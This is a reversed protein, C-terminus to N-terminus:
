LSYISMSGDDSVADLEGEETESGEVNSEAVVVVGDGGHRAVDGDGQDAADGDGQDAADGPQHQENADLADDLIGRGQENLFEM